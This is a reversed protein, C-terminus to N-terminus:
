EKGLAADVKAYDNAVVLLVTNEAQKVVAQELKPLDEPKYQVDAEIEAQGSVYATLTDYVAKASDDDAMAIVAFQEYGGELSTYAVASVPVDALGYNPTIVDADLAELEQSFAGSDLLARSTAALDYAAPAAEPKGGCAASLALLLACCLVSVSKKM